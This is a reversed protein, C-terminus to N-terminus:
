RVSIRFNNLNKHFGYGIEWWWSKNPPYLTHFANRDACM